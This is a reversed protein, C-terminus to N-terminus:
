YYTSFEKIGIKVTLIDAAFEVIVLLVSFHESAMWHEPVELLQRTEAGAADFLQQAFLLLGSVIDPTHVALNSLAVLWMEVYFASM